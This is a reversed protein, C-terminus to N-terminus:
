CTRRLLIVCCNFWKRSFKQAKAEAATTGLPDKLVQKEIKELPDKTERKRCVPQVTLARMNSAKKWSTSVRKCITSSKLFAESAATNAEAETKMLRKTGKPKRSLSSKKGAM